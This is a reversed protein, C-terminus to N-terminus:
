DDLPKKFLAAGGGGTETVTEYEDLLQFFAEMKPYNDNVALMINSLLVYGGPKLKPLYNNLDELTGKESYDGDIHLFDINRVYKAADKSPKRLVKVFTRIQWENILNEFQGLAQRMNVKSWWARNPDDEALNEIAVSNSWADIAFVKGKGIHKLTAAVPLVSSGTFAGIEVCVDPKTLYVLDMLLDIKEESCWSNKLYDQVETKLDLYDPELLSMFDLSTQDMLDFEPDWVASLHVASVLFFLTLIKAYFKQMKTVEPTLLTM